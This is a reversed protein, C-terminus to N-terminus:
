MLVHCPLVRSVKWGGDEEFVKSEQVTFTSPSSSHSLDRTVKFFLFKFGDTLFCYISSREVQIEAMLQTAMDIIHGKESDPFSGFRRSKVDGLFVIGLGGSTGPKYNVCDPCRTSFSRKTYALPDPVSNLIRRGTAHCQVFARLQKSVYHQTVEREASGVAPFPDLPFPLEVDDVFKDLDDSLEQSYVLRQCGLLNKYFEAESTVGHYAQRSELRFRLEM